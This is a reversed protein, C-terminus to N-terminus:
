NGNMFHYLVQTPTLFLPHIFHDENGKLTKSKLEAM